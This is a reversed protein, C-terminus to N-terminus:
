PTRRHEDLLRAHERDLDASERRVQASLKLRGWTRWVLSDPNLVLRVVVVHYALMLAVVLALALLFNLM